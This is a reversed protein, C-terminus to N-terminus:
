PLRFRDTFSSLRRGLAGNESVLWGLVGVVSWIGLSQLDLQLGGLYVVAPSAIVLQMAYGVDGIVPQFASMWGFVQWSALAVMVAALGQAAVM